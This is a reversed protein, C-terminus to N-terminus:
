PSATRGATFGAASAAEVCLAVLKRGVPRPLVPLAADVLWTSVTLTAPTLVRSWGRVLRNWASDAPPLAVGSSGVGHFSEFRARASGSDWARRARIRTTVSAMHHRVNAGEELVIPVGQQALRYGFDLDEWGYGRYRDDYGGVADFDARTCSVNGGWLRWREGAPTLRAGARGSEDAWAGYVRMYVNDPAVNLPLGVVGVRGTEHRAVHAAVHGPSLEFDDDARILVDGTAAAFGTNLATVRGRNEPLVICRVPLHAYGAVVAESNDIDGDIVVIAEWDAHTQAALSNLLLPLRSAGGRSPIVVSAKM